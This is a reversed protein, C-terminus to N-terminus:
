NRDATEQDSLQLAHRYIDYVTSESAGVAEAIESFSKNNHRLELIDLVTRQADIAAVLRDTSSPSLNYSHHCYRCSPNSTKKGCLNYSTQLNEKRRCRSCTGSPHQTRYIGCMSCVRSQHFSM